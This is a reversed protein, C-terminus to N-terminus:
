AAAGLVIPSLALLLPVVLAPAHHRSARLSLPVVTGLGEDRLMALPLAYILSAALLVGVALAVVLAFTVTIISVPGLASWSKTWASGAVLWVALHMALTVAMSYLAVLLLPIAREPEHLGRVLGLPSRRLVALRQSPAIPKKQQTLEDVTVYSGALLVPAVLGVLLGGVLPVAALLAFLTAATLGMGTLLWPNRGYLRGGCRLWRGGLAMRRVVAAVPVARRAAAPALGATKRRVRAPAARAAAPKGGTAM